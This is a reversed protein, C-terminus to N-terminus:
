MHVLTFVGDDRSKMLRILQLMAWVDANDQGSREAACFTVSSDLTVHGIMSALYM